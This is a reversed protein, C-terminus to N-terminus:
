IGWRLRFLVADSELEFYVADDIIRFRGKLNEICWSYSEHSLFSGGPEYNGYGLNIYTAEFQDTTSWDLSATPEWDIPDDKSWISNNM